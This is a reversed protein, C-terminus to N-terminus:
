IDPWGSLRSLQPELIKRLNDRARFLLSKVGKETLDMAEAVEAHSLEEYRSYIIALRQTDPLRQIAEWVITQLETRELGDVPTGARPDAVEPPGLDEGSGSGSLSLARKGKTDRLYNLCRNTAIRFLWTTFKAEPRYRHRAKFARLFVEQALDEASAAGPGLYRHIVSLVPRQFEEVLEGFAELDDRSARVMLERAREDEV